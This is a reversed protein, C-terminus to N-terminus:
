PSNNDLVSYSWQENLNTNSVKSADLKVSSIVRIFKSAKLRNKSIKIMVGFVMHDLGDIDICFEKNKGKVSDGGGQRYVTKIM